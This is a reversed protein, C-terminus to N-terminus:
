FSQVAQSALLVLLLYLPYYLTTSQKTMGMTMTPHSSPRFPNSPIRAYSCKGDDEVAIPRRM